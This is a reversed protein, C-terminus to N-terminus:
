RIIDQEEWYEDGSRDKPGKVPEGSGQVAGWGGLRISNQTSLWLDSIRMGLSKMMTPVWGKGQSRTLVNQCRQFGSKQKATVGSKGPTYWRYERM